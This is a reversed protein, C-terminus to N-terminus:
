GEKHNDPWYGMALVMAAFVALLSMSAFYHLM